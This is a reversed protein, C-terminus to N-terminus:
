AGVGALLHAPIEIEDGYKACLYASLVALRMTVANFSVPSGSDDLVEATWVANRKSLTHVHLGIIQLLNDSTVYAWRAAQGEWFVRLGHSHREYTRRKDGDAGLTLLDVAYAIQIEDLDEIRIKM